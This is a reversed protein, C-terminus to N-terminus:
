NGITKHDLDVSLRLQSIHMVYYLEIKVRPWKQMTAIVDTAFAVQLNSFMHINIVM